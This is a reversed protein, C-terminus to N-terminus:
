LTESVNEDLENIRRHLRSAMVTSHRMAQTSGAGRKNQDKWDFTGMRMLAFLVPDNFSGVERVRLEEALRCTFGWLRDDHHCEVLTDNLWQTEVFRERGPLIAGHRM